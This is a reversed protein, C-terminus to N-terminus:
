VSKKKRPSRPRQNNTQEKQTAWRWNTPEYNGDNNPYRDISKNLPPDGVDHYFNEFSLWRDCVTIGRGGYYHYDKNNPNRCRQIVHKWITYVRTGSKGHKTNQESRACSKCGQSHKRRLDGTSIEGLNGCICRCKWFNVPINPRKPAKELVEWRGFIQGILDFM